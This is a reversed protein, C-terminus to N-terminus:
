HLTKKKLFRGVARHSTNMLHMHETTFITTLLNFYLGFILQFIKMWRLNEPKHNIQWEDLPGM